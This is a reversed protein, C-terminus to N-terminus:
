QNEEEPTVCDHVLDAWRHDQGTAVLWCASCSVAPPVPAHPPKPAAHEGLQLQAEAKGERRERRNTRTKIRRTVGARQTYCYLKRWGTHVDQEDGNVIRRAM